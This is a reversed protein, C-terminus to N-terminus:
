LQDWAAHLGNYSQLIRRRVRDLNQSAVPDLDAFTCVGTDGCLQMWLTKANGMFAVSNLVLCFSTFSIKGKKEPDFAGRWAAATSPYGNKLRQHLQKLLPTETLVTWPQEDDKTTSKFSVDFAPQTKQMGVRAAFGM